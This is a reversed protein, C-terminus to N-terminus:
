DPSHHGRQLHAPGPQISKAASTKAPVIRNLQIQFYNEAGSAYFNKKQYLIKEIHFSFPNFANQNERNNTRPNM